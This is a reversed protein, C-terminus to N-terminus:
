PQMERWARPWRSSPPCGSEAWRRITPLHYRVSRGLRRRGPIIGRSADRRVTSEGRALLRAVAAVTGLVPEVPPSSQAVNSADRGAVAEVAEDQECAPRPRVERSTM